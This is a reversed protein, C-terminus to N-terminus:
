FHGCYKKIIQHKCPVNKFGFVNVYALTRAQTIHILGLLLSSWIPKKTFRRPTLGLFITNFKLIFRVVVVVVVVLNLRM